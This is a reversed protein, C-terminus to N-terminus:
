LSKSIHSAIVPVVDSDSSEISKATTRRAM